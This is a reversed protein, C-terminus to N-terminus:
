LARETACELFHAGGDDVADAVLAAAVIAQLTMKLAWGASSVGVLLPASSSRSGVDIGCQSLDGVQRALAAVPVVFGASFRRGGFAAVFVAEAHAFAFDHVPHALALGVLFDARDEVDAGEGDLVVQLADEFSPTKLRVWATM